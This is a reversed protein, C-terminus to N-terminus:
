GRQKINKEIIKTIRLIVPALVVNIGLEILFNIGACVIVLFYIITQGSAVFNANLTDSMFLAGLIFLSTNVLPCVIASVFSAVTENKSKLLKYSFGSALGCCFGKGFCVLATIVPHDGILVATFADMGFLGQLYVIIGFILGLFGASLPGLLMGCLVIPVLVFSLQTAGIKIFSGFMQLVIVLALLIAFYTINKATLFRESFCQSNGESKMFVELRIEYLIDTSLYIFFFIDGTETLNNENYYM